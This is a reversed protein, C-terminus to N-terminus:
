VQINSNNRLQTEPLARCRVNRNLNLHRGLQRPWSCKRHHYRPDQGPDQKETERTNPFNGDLTALPTLIEQDFWTHQAPAQDIIGVVLKDNSTLV